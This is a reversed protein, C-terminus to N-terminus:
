KPISSSFNGRAIPFSKTFKSDRAHCGFLITRSSDLSIAVVRHCFARSIGPRTNIKRLRLPSRELQLDIGGPTVSFDIKVARMQGMKLFLALSRQQKHALQAAEILAGGNAAANGNNEWPKTRALTFRRVTEGANLAPVNAFDRWSSWQRPRTAVKGEPKM